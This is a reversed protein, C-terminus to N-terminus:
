PNIGIVELKGGRGWTAPGRCVALQQIRFQDNGHKVNHASAAALAARDDAYRGFQFWHNPKSSPTQHYYIGPKMNITRM